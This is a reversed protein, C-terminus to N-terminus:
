EKYHTRLSTKTIIGTIVIVHVSKFMFEKKILLNDM